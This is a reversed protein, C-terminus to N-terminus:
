LIVRWDPTRNTKPEFAKAVAVELAARASGTIILRESGCTLVLRTEEVGLRVAGFVAWDSLDIEGSNFGTLYQPLGTRDIRLLVTGDSADVTSSGGDLIVTNEGPGTTIQNTGQGSHFSDNGIGGIMVADGPGGYLRNNGARCELRDTGAGGYLVSDSVGTLVHTQGPGCHVVLGDHSATVYNVGRGPFIVADFRKHSSSFVIKNDRSNGIVTMETLGGNTDSAFRFENVGEPMEIRGNADLTAFQTRYGPRALPPNIEGVTVLGLTPLESVTTARRTLSQFPAARRGVADPGLMDVGYIYCTAILDAYHAAYEPHKSALNKQLWKDDEVDYFEASGDQYLTTRYAGKRVSASGYWFTPVSRDLELAGHISGRLSQGVAPQLPACGTYELLTPGIDVLAVPADIQQGRVEPDHIILPVRAAEEWLTFKRFRGKDGMHYGHDSFLVFVTNDAHKSAKLADWVQGIHMDVHSYASFYNRVSKRWFEDDEFRPNEVMYRATFESVDFGQAWDEPRIFDDLDYMEKFRVPTKFPLHPHHFGVERYFPADGDYSNLFRIAHRASRADYYHMDAATDTTGHGGSIGGFSVTPSDKAPGFHVRASPHSYLVNHLDDALPKFGHHVKGATSCYYGARKLRYQWMQEPRLKDFISIYNDLVGTEFPSLGSMASARSPGCIPVQCYASTFITSQAMIRDLNPTQLTAGFTTRYRWFAFGDDIAVLVVNKRVM